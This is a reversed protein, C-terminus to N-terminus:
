SSLWPKRRASTCARPGSWLKLSVDPHGRQPLVWRFEAMAKEQRFRMGEPWDWWAQDCLGPLTRAVGFM